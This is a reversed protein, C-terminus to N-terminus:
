HRGGGGGSHGGGSAHGGGSSSGFHGGGGGSRPASSGGRYAPPPAGRGVGNYGRGYGSYGGGYGPYSRSQARSNGYGNYRGNRQANAASNSDRNAWATSPLVKGTPRPVSQSTRSQAGVSNQATTAGSREPPRPVSYRNGAAAQNRATTNAPGENRATPKPTETSSRTEAAPSQRGGVSSKEASPQRSATAASSERSAPSAPQREGSSPRQPPTLKSMVPRQQSSAPPSTGPRTNPGATNRAPASAVHNTAQANKWADAPVKVGGQAVSEGREMASQSMGHIAGPAKANALNQNVQHNNFYNNTVHNINVIHTNNINVSHFYGRSGGYWPYFPEHWGLACWGWGHFGWGWGWGPGYWGVMAPAYWPRAWIPGPAWGWAGGWWVWRGYHFPAFGWPAYDIWTWGWPGVWSWYGYSYPAWGAPVSPVWVNGYEPTTQWTGNGDLDEAGITGPAVYDASVSHDQREDRTKCWDDFGDPKPPNHSEHALAEGTVRVLEPAHVRFSPGKGTVDGNGKWATLATADQSPDVNFRYNGAKQVTFAMNPTDVEYVEGPFLYRVRLNLTGQHLQVQVTSNSINTLTLSSESDMRMVGTGVSLEARSDKDTWVNDSTTLPHNLKGEIWDGTGEPQISVSGSM